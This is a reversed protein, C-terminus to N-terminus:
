VRPPRVPVAETRVLGTDHAIGPWCNEPATMVVAPVAESALVIKEVGGGLAAEHPLQQRATNEATQSLHCFKCPASGDFTTEFAAAETMKASNDHFM